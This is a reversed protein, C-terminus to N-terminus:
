QSINRRRVTNSSTVSQYDQDTNSQSVFLWKRNGWDLQNAIWSQCLCAVFTLLPWPHIRQLIQQSYLLAFLCEKCTKKHTCDSFLLYMIPAPPMTLLLLAQWCGTVMIRQTPSHQLYLFTKQNKSRIIIFVYFKRFESHLSSFFSRLIDGWRVEPHAPLWSLLSIPFMTFNIYTPSVMILQPPSQSFAATM